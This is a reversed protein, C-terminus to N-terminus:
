LANVAGDMNGGLASNSLTTLAVVANPDIKRKDLVSEGTALCGIVSIAIVTAFVAVTEMQNFLITPIPGDMSVIEVTELEADALQRLWAVASHVLMGGAM